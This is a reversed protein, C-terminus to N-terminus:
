PTVRRVDPHQRGEKAEELIGLAMMVLMAAADSIPSGAPPLLDLNQFFASLLPADGALDAAAPVLREDGRVSAALLAVVRDVLEAERRIIGRRRAAGLPRATQLVVAEVFAVLGPDLGGGAVIGRLRHRTAAALARRM